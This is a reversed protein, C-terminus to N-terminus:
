NNHFDNIYSTLCEVFKLSSKGGETEVHTFHHYHHKYAWMVGKVRM